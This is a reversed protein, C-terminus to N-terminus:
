ARQVACRLRGRQSAEVQQQSRVRVRRAAVPHLPEWGLQAATALAARAARRVRRQLHERPHHLLALVLVLVLVLVV